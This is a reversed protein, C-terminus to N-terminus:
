WLLPTRLQGELLKKGVDNRVKSFQLRFRSQELRECYGEVIAMWPLWKRVFREPNTNVMLLCQQRLARRALDLNMMSAVSVSFEQAAHSLNAASGGKLNPRRQLVRPSLAALGNAIGLQERRFLEEQPIGLYRAADDINQVSVAEWAEVFERLKSELLSRIAGESLYEFTTKTSLHGMLAREVAIDPHGDEGRLNRVAARIHQRHIRLGGFVENKKHRELFSPWREGSMSVLSTEVKTAAPKRWVWLRESTPGTESRMSHTLKKWMDIIMVGSPRDPMTKTALYLEREALNERLPGPVVRGNSRNKVLHISRVKVRGRQPVGSYCDYSIDDVPQCNAGLDILLIHYAANLSKITSECYPQADNYNIVSKRFLNAKPSVGDINILTKKYIKLAVGLIQKRNYKTDRQVIKDKINQDTYNRLVLEFDSVDPISPDNMLRNGEEFLDINEKLELWLCKRIEELMERNCISFANAADPLSKGSVNLRGAEFKVTALCKSAAGFEEKIRRGELEVEPILGQTSLWRLACRLSEFKKNRSEPTGNEIFSHDGLNLISAAIDELIVGWEKANPSWNERDRFGELIVGYPTNPEVAGKRAILIFAKRAAKFYNDSTAGSRFSASNRWAAEFRRCFGEGYFPVLATLHYSFRHGEISFSYKPPRARVMDSYLADAHDGEPKIVRAKGRCRDMRINEYNNEM